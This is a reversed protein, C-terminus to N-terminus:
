RTPTPHFPPSPLVPIQLPPAAPSPPLGPRRRARGRVAARAPDNLALCVWLVDRRAAVSSLGTGVGGGGRRASLLGNEGLTFSVPGRNNAILLRGASSGAGM